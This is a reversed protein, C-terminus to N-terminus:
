HKCTLIHLQSALNFRTNLSTPFSARYGMHAPLSDHIDLIRGMLVGLGTVTLDLSLVQVGRGAVRCSLNFIVWKGLQASHRDGKVFCGM